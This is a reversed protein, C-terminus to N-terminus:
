AQMVVSSRVARMLTSALTCSYGSHSEQDIRVVVGAGAAVRFRVGARVRVTDDFGLEFCTRLGEDCGLLEM